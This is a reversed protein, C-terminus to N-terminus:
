GALTHLFDFVGQKEWSETFESRAADGFLTVCALNECASAIFADFAASPHAQGPGFCAQVKKHLEKAKELNAGGQELLADSVLFGLERAFTFQEPRVLLFEDLRTHAKGKAAFSSVAAPPKNDMEFRMQVREPYIDTLRVDLPHVRCTFDLAALQPLFRAIPAAAAEVIRVERATMKPLDPCVKELDGRSAEPFGEKPAPFEDLRLLADCAAWGFYSAYLELDLELSERFLAMADEFRGDRLAKKGKLMRLHGAKEPDDGCAEILADVEELSHLELSPPKYDIREAAIKGAENQLGFSSPQLALGEFADAMHEEGLHVRAADELMAYLRSYELQEANMEDPLVQRLRFAEEYLECATRLHVMAEEHRKLRSHAEGIVAYLHRADPAIDLAPQIDELVEDFKRHRLYHRALLVAFETESPKTLVLRRVAEEVEGIRDLEIFHRALGKMIPLPCKPDLAMDLALAEAWDNRELDFLRNVAELRLDYGTEPPFADKLKALCGECKMPEATISRVDDLVAGRVQMERNKAKSGFLKSLLGM